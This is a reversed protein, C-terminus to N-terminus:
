RSSWGERCLWEALFESDLDVNDNHSLRVFEKWRQNDHPNSNGTAKNAMGSFQRLAAAVRPTTLDELFRSEPGLEVSPKGDIGKCCPEFVARAFAAALQNYESHTLRNSNLPM